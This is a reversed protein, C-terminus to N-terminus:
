VKSKTRRRTGILLLGGILALLGSPEPIATISSIGNFMWAGRGQLGALLIDDSSDYHLDRVPANPLDGLLFWNGLGLSSLSYYIDGTRLGAFIADIGNFEFLEVSWIDDGGFSFLNGTINAFSAGADETFFISNVDTAVLSQFDLENMAMDAVQNGAYASVTILSGGATLRQELRGVASPNYFLSDGRGVWLADNNNFAGTEIVGVNEDTSDSLQTVTNGRNSSEFVNDAGGVFLKGNFRNVAIPTYFQKEGSAMGTLSAFSTSVVVNNSDVERVRLAGIRQFSTYRLSNGTGLDFTAVKGGDGQSVTRHVGSGSFVEETTGVDQTGGFVINSNPDWGISHYETATLNGVAGFWDGANDVSPSTRRYVGGDDVQVLEGNADFAMERSDAHPSTNNLTSTNGSTGGRHTLVSSQTGTVRSADVRFLRGSYNAAGISNPWGTIGFEGPGPQRDGGIYVLNENNPDALISFHITGQGGAIEEPPGSTPGKPGGPNSGAPGGPENTVPIDL